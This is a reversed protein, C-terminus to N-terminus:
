HSPPFILSELERATNEAARQTGLLGDIRRFEEKMRAMEGESRLLEMVVRALTKPQFKKQILEPVVRRGALINVISYDRIRVLHRFPYYTLPSLRYYAVFPTGLLATELNATGCSSLALDSYAIADYRDETVVDIGEKGSSLYPDLLRRPLNEAQVLLFRVPFEARLLRATEMLVPLHNRIETPRSGPLLAILRHGPNLSYKGMFEARSLRTAVRGKLPHGVYTAPIGSDDYIEKEFPFILCMRNVTRRIARLRNRRWAWVTPSIYYLVPAGTRRMVKALRLNFDPSDILISALPRRVRSERRVLEFIGRFHVLRTLVEAVGVANLRELPCIIEVGEEELRRGGIGFFRVEPHRKRFERVVDAGHKDGSSEGAVVLISAM